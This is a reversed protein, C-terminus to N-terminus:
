YAKISVRATTPLFGTASCTPSTRSRTSLLGYANSASKAFSKWAAHAARHPDPSELASKLDPLIGDWGRPKLATRVRDLIRDQNRALKNGAADTRLGALHALAEVTVSPIWNDTELKGGLPGATVQIYRVFLPLTGQPFGPECVRRPDGDIIWDVEDSVAELCVEHGVRSKGVGWGGIVMFFGSLDQGTPREIEARFTSLKEFLSKQGVIPSMEALREPLISVGERQM